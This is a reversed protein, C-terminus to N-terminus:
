KAQRAAGHARVLTRSRPGESEAARALDALHTAAQHTKYRVLLGLANGDRLKCASVLSRATFLNETPEESVMHPEPAARHASADWLEEIVRVLHRRKSARYITFHLERFLQVLDETRGENQAAEVSRVIGELAEIDADSLHQVAQRAALEEVVARTTFLDVLDDSDADVGEGNPIVELASRGMQALADRAVASRAVAGRAIASRAVMTNSCPPSLRMM